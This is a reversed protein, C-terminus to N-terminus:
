IMINYSIGLVTKATKVVYFITFIYVMVPIEWNLLDVCTQNEIM